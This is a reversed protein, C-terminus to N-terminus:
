ESHENYDRRTSARHLVSSRQTGCLIAVAAGVVCRVPHLTASRNAFLGIGLEPSFVRMEAPRVYFKRGLM